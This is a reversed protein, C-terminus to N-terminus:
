RSVIGTRAEDAARAPSAAVAAHRGAAPGRAPGLNPTQEAPAVMSGGSGYAGDSLRFQDALANLREATRALSDSNTTLQEMAAVQRDAAAATAQSRDLAGRGIQQIRDMTDNISDIAQAHAELNDAIQQVFRTAAELGTVIQELSTRNAGSVAGVGSLREDNERIRQRLDRIARGVEEVTGAVDDASVSSEGALKHVEDAVVAFGRGYEGARAAEIAANLALLNTQRTIERITDVFGTIDEGSRELLAMAEASRSFDNAVAELMESAREIRQAHESTEAMLQRSQTAYGSADQRLRAGARAVSGMASRGAEVLSMQGEAERALEGTTQGVSEAAARTERATASLQESTEALSRAQQQIERIMSSLTDLMSNVSMSLFGIDDTREDRLRITFDGAEIRALAARTQRLRQAISVLGQTALWAIGMGFLTELAILAVPTELGVLIYGGARGLPYALGALGMQIQSAEPLGLAYGAVVYVVAVLAVYGHPGLAATFGGILTTDVVVMIWFQWPSFQGSRRLYDVLANSIMAWAALGLALEYSLTLADSLGGIVALAALLLVFVWRKGISEAHRARMILLRERAFLQEFPQRTPTSTTM